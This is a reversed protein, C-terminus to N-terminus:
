HARGLAAALVRGLDLTAEVSLREGRTSASTSEAIPGAGLRARLTGGGLFPMILFPGRPSDGFDLLPVFGDDEKFSALLRREREFRALADADGKAHLLKLAVVHGEPSRARYVVGM